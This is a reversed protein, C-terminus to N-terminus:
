HQKFIRALWSKKVSRGSGEERCPAPTVSEAIPSQQWKLLPKPLRTLDAPTTTGPRLLDGPYQPHGLCLYDDIYFAKAVAVAEVCWQGFYAGGAMNVEGYKYWYPREHVAVDDSTNKNRPPRNLELYWHEVFDKLLDARDEPSANVADLLRQYPKPHCIRDGILRQHQRTAIVQDLLRDQGENGMLAILRLWQDEALNLSLALGTLWFCVIYHDLNRSWDFKRQYEEVPFQEFHLEKAHEWAHLLPPFYEGLEEIRDGRSYRLFILQWYKQVIQFAYQPAYKPNEAPARSINEMHKIRDITYDIWSGWYEINCFPARIM